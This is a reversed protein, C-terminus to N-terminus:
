TGNTTTGGSGRFFDAKAAESERMVAREAGWALVAGALFAPGLFGSESYFGGAGGGLARVVEDDGSCGVHGKVEIVHSGRSM